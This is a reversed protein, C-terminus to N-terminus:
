IDARHRPRHAHAALKLAHKIQFGAMNGAGFAAAALEKALNVGRRLKRGIDGILNFQRM